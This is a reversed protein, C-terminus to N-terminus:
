GRKLAGLSVKAQQLNEIKDRLVIADPDNSWTSYKTLAHEVKKLESEVASFCTELDARRRSQAVEKTVRQLQQQVRPTLEKLRLWLITLWHVLAAPNKVKSIADILEPNDICSKLLQYDDPVSTFYELLKWKEPVIHPRWHPSNIMRFLVALIAMRVGDTHDITDVASAWNVCFRKMEDPEMVPNPANFWEDGILPLFFLAAKRLEFPKDDQYVYCIGRVFSAKTPNFRILANTTAPVSAYALARLADQIPEDQIPNQQNQGGETISDFHHGLFTLIHQPDGVPPLFNDRKYAGHLSLRSAKWKEQSHTLGFPAQMVVQFLSYSKQAINNKSLPTILEMAELARDIEDITANPNRFTEALKKYIRDIQPNVKGSYRSSKTEHSLCPM